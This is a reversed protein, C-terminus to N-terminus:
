GNDGKAPLRSQHLHRGGAVADLYVKQPTRAKATCEEFLFVDFFGSLWRDERIMKALAKREAAFERQVSSIFIKM